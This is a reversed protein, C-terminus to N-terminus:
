ASEVGAAWADSQCSGPARCVGTPTQRAGQRPLRTTRLLPKRATKTTVFPPTRATSRTGVFEQFGSRVQDGM